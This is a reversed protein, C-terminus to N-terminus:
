IGLKKRYVALSITLVYFGFTKLGLTKFSKEGSMQGLGSIIASTILPVVLLTLSNLFLRGILDFLDFFTIGFLGATTGTINGVIIALAIALLVQILMANKKM